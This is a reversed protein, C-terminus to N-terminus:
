QAINIMRLEHRTKTFQEENLPKTFIDALQKETSVFNLSIDWKKVHDRLFYHRIEIHKTRSHQIPKKSLNIVSTKDCMIPIKDLYIDYDRLTQKMRIAQAYCSGAVVYTVETTSLAVLNQKTSFWSVLFHGLFHYTGSSSKRDVKYRAFEADSYCTLGIHSGRPYWLGLDITGSLYRFIRKVALFHSEKLCSQFRACLCVSFMIDPRSATLHLLSGIM